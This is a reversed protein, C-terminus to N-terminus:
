KRDVISTVAIEIQQTKEFRYGKPTMEWYFFCFINKPTPASITVLLMTRNVCKQAEKKLETGGTRPLENLFVSYSPRILYKGLPRTERLIFGHLIRKQLYYSHHLGSHDPFKCSKVIADLNRLSRPCTANLLM